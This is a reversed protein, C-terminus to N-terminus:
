RIKFHSATVAISQSKPEATTGGYWAPDAYNYLFELLCQNDPAAVEVEAVLKRFTEENWTKNALAEDRKSAIAELKDWNIEGAM